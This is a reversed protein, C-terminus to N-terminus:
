LEIKKHNPARVGLLQPYKKPEPGSWSGDLFQSIIELLQKQLSVSERLFCNMWNNWKPGKGCGALATWARLVQYAIKAKNSRSIVIVGERAVTKITPHYNEKWPEPDSHIVLAGYRESIGWTALRSFLEQDNYIPTAILIRGDKSLLPLGEAVVRSTIREGDPGGDTFYAWAGDSITSSPVFPTNALIIEFEQGQVAKYVDSVFFRGEVGNLLLNARAFRAARSSVDLLTLEFHYGSSAAYLSAIIGQVGSGTCMDLIRVPKSKALGVTANKVSAALGNSDVGIYMVGDTGPLDTIFLGHEVPFIQVYPFVLEGVIAVANNDILAERASEPVLRKFTSHYMPSGVVFLRIMDALDSAIAPLGEDALGPYLAADAEHQGILLISARIFGLKKLTQGLMFFGDSHIPVENELRRLVGSLAPQWPKACSAKPPACRSLVDPEVLQKQLFRGRGSIRWCEALGNATTPAPKGDGFICGPITQLVCTEDGLEGMFTKAKAFDCKCFPVCAETSTAPIEFDWDALAEASLAFNVSLFLSALSCVGLTVHCNGM